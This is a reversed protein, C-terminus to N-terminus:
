CVHREWKWAHQMTQSKEGLAVWLHTGVRHGDQQHLGGPADAPGPALLGAEEGQVLGARSEQLGGVAEKDGDAVCAAHLHVAPCAVEAGEQHALSPHPPPPAGVNLHM